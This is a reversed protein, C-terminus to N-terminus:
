CRLMSCKCRAKSRFPRLWRSGGLRVLGQRSSRRQQALRPSMPATYSPRFRRSRTLAAWPRLLCRTFLAPVLAPPSNAPAPRASAEPVPGPSFQRCQSGRRHGTDAGLRLQQHPPQLESRLTYFHRGHRQLCPHITCLATCAAGRVEQM